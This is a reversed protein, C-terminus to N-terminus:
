VGFDAISSVEQDLWANRLFAEIHRSQAVHIRMRQTAVQGGLSDENQGFFDIHSYLPWM